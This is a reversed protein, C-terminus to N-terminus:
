THIPNSFEAHATIAQFYKFIDRNAFASELGKPKPNVTSIYRFWIRDAIFSQSEARATLLDSIQEASYTGTNGLFTIPSADHRKANFIAKGSSRTVQYGTLGRAVNKIDDESYNNVGLTFLEMLERALNENPGSVTNLQADLWYLLAADTMMARSMETFNGLAHKRLTENQLKMPLAYEVKGSSTAWHGHWFWTARETLANDALVMRDLWWMTLDLLQKRRATAFPVVQPTNPTPFAGLDTIVPAALSTLGSDNSFPNLIRTRAGDIGLNLLAQYEGPKPGFGFRNILRSIVLRDASTSM